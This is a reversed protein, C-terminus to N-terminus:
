PPPENLLAWFAGLQKVAEVFEAFKLPKVVFANVGLAYCEELDRPERSSTLMVIPLKKLAPDARIERLVEIGDMRPMKIDLLVVVPLGPERDAYVGNRRLYDLAADGDRVVDIQNALNYPGLGRLTLDVDNGDDEALLIRRLKIV